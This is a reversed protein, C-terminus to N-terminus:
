NEYLQWQIHQLVGCLKPWVEGGESARFTVFSCEIRPVSNQGCVWCLTLPQHNYHQFQDEKWDNPKRFLKLLRNWGPPHSVWFCGVLEVQGHVQEMCLKWSELDSLTSLSARRVTIQFQSSNSFLPVAISDIIFYWLVNDIMMAIVITIILSKSSGGGGLFGTGDSWM